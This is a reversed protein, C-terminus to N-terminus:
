REQALSACGKFLPWFLEMARCFGSRGGTFNAGGPVTPLLSRFFSNRSFKIQPVAPPRGARTSRDSGAESM